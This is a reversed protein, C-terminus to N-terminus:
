SAIQQQFFVRCLCTPWRQGSHCGALGLSRFNENTMRSTMGLALQHRKKQHLGFMWRLGQTMTKSEWVARPDPLAIQIVFNSALCNTGRPQYVFTSCDMRATVAM